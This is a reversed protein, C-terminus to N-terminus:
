LTNAGLGRQPNAAVIEERVRVLLKPKPAIPNRVLCREELCSRVVEKAPWRGASRRRRDFEAPETRALDPPSSV